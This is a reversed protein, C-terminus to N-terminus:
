SFRFDLRISSLMDSPPYMARGQGGCAHLERAKGIRDRSASSAEVSSRPFRTKTRASRFTGSEPPWIPSSAHKAVFTERDLLCAEIDAYRTVIFHDLEDDYFVPSEARLSALRPYPDVLFGQELWGVGHSVPCTSATMVTSRVCAIIEAAHGLGGGRDLGPEAHNSPVTFTPRSSVLMARRTGSRVAM